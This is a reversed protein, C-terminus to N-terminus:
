SGDSIIYRNPCSQELLQEIETKPKNRNIAAIPNFKMEHIRERIAKMEAGLNGEPKVAQFFAIVENKPTPEDRVEADHYTSDVNLVREGNGYIVDHLNMIEKAFEVGVLETLVKAFLTDADPDTSDIYAVKHSDLIANALDPNNCLDTIYKEFMTDNNM